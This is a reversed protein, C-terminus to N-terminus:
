SYTYVRRKYKKKLLTHVHKSLDWKNQLKDKAIYIEIQRVKKKDLAYMNMIQKLISNTVKKGHFPLRSIIDTDYIKKLPEERVRFMNFDDERLQETKKKDLDPKDNHWYRGDFEIGLHLEPIYIDVTRLRRKVKTKFCGPNIEKFIKKLEFTVTLEERSQPTLICDPCASGKLRNAISEKWKHRRGKTCKWWVNKDLGITFHHPSLPGNKTLNWQKKLKPNLITKYSSINIKLGSCVPCVTRSTVNGIIAKWAHKKSDECKWWVKKSSSVTVDYPTLNRNKTPHWLKALKPNLTALCNSLVVKKGACIPCGSGSSRSAIRAEWEHDDGKECKWWVKIGSSMTVEHPKLNGNKTPHWQKTLEPKRGALSRGKPLKKLM